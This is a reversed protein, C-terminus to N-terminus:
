RVGTRRRPQQDDPVGVRPDAEAPRCFRRAYWRPAGAERGRGRLPEWGTEGLGDVLTRLAAQAGPSRDPPVTGRWDFSPSSAVTRRNRGRVVVAEFWSGDDDRHWRIQCVDQAAAPAGAAPREHRRRGNPPATGAAPANSQGARRVHDRAPEARASDAAERSMRRPAPAAVPPSAAAPRRRDPPAAAPGTEAPSAAPMPAPPAPAPPARRGGRALGFRRAAVLALVAAAGSGLLIAPWPPGDPAAPRAAGPAPAGRHATPAPALQAPHQELPYAQLLRDTADAGWAAPSLSAAAVLVAAVVAAPGLRRRTPSGRYVMTM